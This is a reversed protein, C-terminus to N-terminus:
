GPSIECRRLYTFHISEAGGKEEGRRVTRMNTIPFAKQPLVPVTKAKKVAQARSQRKM